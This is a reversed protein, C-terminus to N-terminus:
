VDGDRHPFQALFSDYAVLTVPRQHYIDRGERSIQRVTSLMLRYGISKACFNILHRLRKFPTALRAWCRTVEVFPLGESDAEGNEESACNKIILRATILLVPLCDDNLRGKAALLAKFNRCESMELEDLM